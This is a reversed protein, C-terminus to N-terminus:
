RNETIKKAYASPQCFFYYIIFHFQRTISRTSHHRVPTLTKSTLEKIKQKKMSLATSLRIEISFAEFLHNSQRLAKRKTRTAAESMRNHCSWLSKWCSEKPPTHPTEKEAAGATNRSFVDSSLIPESAHTQSRARMSSRWPVHSLVSRVNKEQSNPPIRSYIAKNAHGQRRWM